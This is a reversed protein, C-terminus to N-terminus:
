INKIEKKISCPNNEKDISMTFGWMKPPILISLGRNDQVNYIVSILQDGSM